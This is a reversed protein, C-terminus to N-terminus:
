ATPVLWRVFWVVCALWVLVIFVAAVRSIPRGEAAATEKRFEDMLESPIMRIALMVGLPVVVLDDLYGIVPIFDPILDIPSFAYAAVAMALAKAHWPTRPDRAAIWLALVDRKVARAWNRLREM